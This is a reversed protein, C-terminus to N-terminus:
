MIKAMLRFQYLMVLLPLCNVKTNWKPAQPGVLLNHMEIKILAGIGKYPYLPTDVEPIM